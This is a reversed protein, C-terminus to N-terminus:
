LFYLTLMGGLGLYPGFPIEDGRKVKKTYLLIIGVCSGVVSGILLSQLAGQIGLWAGIESFLKIDGEGLARRGAIRHSIYQVAKLGIWCTCVAYISDHADITVHLASLLLGSWLLPMSLADPIIFHKFDIYIVSLM